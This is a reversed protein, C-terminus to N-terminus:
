RHRKLKSSDVTERADKSRGEDVESQRTKADDNLSRQHRERQLERELQAQSTPRLSDPM